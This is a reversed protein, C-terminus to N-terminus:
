GESSRAWTCFPASCDRASPSPAPRAERSDSSSQSMEYAPIPRPSGLSNPLPFRRAWCPGATSPSADRGAARDSPRSAVKVFRTAGEVVVRVATAQSGGSPVFGPAFYAIDVATAEDGAEDLAAAAAYAGPGYDYGFAPVLGAGNREAM